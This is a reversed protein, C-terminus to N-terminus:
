VVPLYVTFCTGKGESSDVEIVGNHGTIIGHVVSLGLGTGENVSKTTFFPEFIRERVAKSIGSGNDSVSLKVLRKALLNEHAAMIQQDSEILDFRIDIMGDENNKLAQGANTLLNMIVQQIQSPDLRVEDCTDCLDKRIKINPSLSLSFLDVSDEILGKLNTLRSEPKVKRSFTLIQNVLGKARVLAKDISSVYNQIPSEGPIEEKMMDTYGIVTGLINNFDHAIGGALTGVTELKQSQRLQAELQTERSIDRQMIAYNTVEGNEDRVPTINAEGEHIQGNKTFIPLRGHWAKGKLLSEKIDNELDPRDVFWPDLYNSGLIEKQSFGTRKIFAPNVYQIIGSTDSIIVLESSQEIVSNLKSQGEEARKRRLIGSLNEIIENLRRMNEESVMKESAFVVHGFRERGALLPFNLLSNVKFFSRIKDPQGSNLPLQFIESIQRNIHLDNYIFWPEGTNFKKLFMSSDAPYFRFEDISTRLLKKLQKKKSEPFAFYRFFFCKKETDWLMLRFHSIGFKEEMQKSFYELIIDLSQNQNALTNLHNILSLDDAQTKIIQQSGVQESIDRFAGQLVKRGGYTIMDGQIEVPTKHGNENVVYLLNKLSFKNNWLHNYFIDEAMEQQDKLHISTFHNGIIEEKPKGILDSAKRNSNLIFGLDPDALLMADPADEFIARFRQESEKLLQESFKTISIDRIYVQIYPKDELIIYNLSIEAYFESKDLRKHLWEFRVNRGRSVSNIHKTAEETSLRGGPQFEPSFDIPTKGVIDPRQCRFMDLTKQNCDVFVRDDMILIADNATEFLHRFKNESEKLDEEDSKKKLISTIQEAIYRIRILEQKSFISLNYIDFVGLFKEGAVLPISYVSRIKLFDNAEKWFQDSVGPYHFKSFFDSIGKETDILVPIREKLVTQYHSNGKLYIRTDYLELKILSELKKRIDPPIPLRGKSKLFSGDENLYYISGGFGGFMKSTERTIIGLINRYSKGSNVAANLKNFLNLDEKQRRNKEEILKRKTIDRALCTLGIIEYDVGKVPTITIDFFTGSKSGTSFYEEFSLSKGNLCQQYRETWGSAEKESHYKLFHESEKIERKFLKQYLEKFIRNAYILRLDKDVSWFYDQSFEIISLSEREGRTIRETINRESTIDKTEIIAHTIEGEDNRYPIYRVKFCRMGLTPTSFWADYTVKHNNLCKDLNPKIFKRFKGEGWVEGLYKGTIEDKSLNHLKRFVNNVAQYCYNKDILSLFSNTTNFNFDYKAFMGKAKKLSSETVSKRLCNHIAPILRSLNNKLVLDTAGMKMAKVVLDEALDDFFLIVPVDPMNTKVLQLIDFVKFSVSTGDIFIIDWDSEPLIKKITPKRDAEKSTFSVSESKIHNQLEKLEPSESALFLFELKKM